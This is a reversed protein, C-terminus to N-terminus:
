LRPLTFVAAPVNSDGGVECALLATLLAPDGSRGTHDEWAPTCAGARHGALTWVGSPAPPPRVVLLDDPHWAGHRSALHAAVHPPLARPSPFVPTTAQLIRHSGGRALLATCVAAHVAAGAAEAPTWDEPSLGCAVHDLHALPLADAGTLWRHGVISDRFVLAFRHRDLSHTSATGDIGVHTFLVGLASSQAHVTGPTDPLAYLSSILRRATMTAARDPSTTKTVAATM